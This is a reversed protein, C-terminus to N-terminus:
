MLCNKKEKYPHSCLFVSRVYMGAQRATGRRAQGDRMPTHGLRGQGWGRGGQGRDLRGQDWGLEVKCNMGRGYGDM